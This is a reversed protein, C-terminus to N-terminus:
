SVFKKIQPDKAKRMLQFYEIVFHRVMSFLDIQLQHYKFLIFQIIQLVIFDAQQLIM